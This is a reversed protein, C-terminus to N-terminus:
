VAGTPQPVILFQELLVAEPQGDSGPSAKTLNFQLRTHGVPVLVDIEFFQKTEFNSPLTRDLCPFGNYTVRLRQGRHFNRLCIIVKASTEAAGNYIGLSAEKERVWRYAGINLLPNPQQEGSIGRHDEVSIGHSITEVRVDKKVEQLFAIQRRFQGAAYLGVDEFARYLSYYSKYISFESAAFLPAWFAMEERLRVNAKLDRIAAALAEATIDNVLVGNVGNRIADETGSGILFLTL